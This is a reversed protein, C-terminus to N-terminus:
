AFSATKELFEFDREESEAPAPFSGLKHTPLDPAPFLTPLQSTVLHLGM